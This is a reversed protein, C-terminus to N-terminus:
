DFRLDRDGLPAFYAAVEAETVDQLNSPRWEPTNDKDIVLARIGECFDHEAIFRQSMRYELVM